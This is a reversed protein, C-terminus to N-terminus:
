KAVEPYMFNTRMYYEACSLQDRLDLLEETLTGFVRGDSEYYGTTNVIPLEQKLKSLYQMYAPGEWGLLEFLEGMLYCPSIDPGEGCFDNGCVAKAADNAWILYRTSYYNMFGEHEWRALSIGLETFAASDDGLYPKHDGYLLLVVPEDLKELESKLTCINAITNKVSGLYNNIIYYSYDSVDGSWLEEGWDLGTSTYPGHGQYTVNFSFVPVDAALDNKFISLIEPFLLDDYTYPYNYQEYYGETYYYNEFGLFSNVNLRNYFSHMSPHSGDAIYGQERLYWVYSSTRSRYDYQDAYGTLFYRETYVTGGAFINTILNGTYSEEELAHYDSYVNDLEGFGCLSLDCFSELQIAIINVKKDEPIDADSYAGILAETEAADYSEPPTDIADSISHIFPYVFGKSVYVDKSVWINIHENNVTRNEYIDSSSYVLSWLPWVLAAILAATIVRTKGGARGRVFFFLLATGLAVCILCLAIRKNISIDYAGAVGLATHISAIDSFMFPDDRLKLKFYNGVSATVFVAATALFAAWSRNFISFMLLEFLFIPILNLLFILPHRFYDLFLEYSGNGIGLLLTLTCIGAASLLLLGINWLHFIFRRGNGAGAPIGTRFIFLREKTSLM